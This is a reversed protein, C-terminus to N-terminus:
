KSQMAVQEDYRPLCCDIHQSAGGVPLRADAARVVTRSSVNSAGDTVVFIVFRVVFRFLIGCCYVYM